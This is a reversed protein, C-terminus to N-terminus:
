PFGALLIRAKTNVRKSGYRLPVRGLTVSRGGKMAPWDGSCVVGSIQIKVCMLKLLFKSRTGVKCYICMRGCVPCFCGAGTCPSM